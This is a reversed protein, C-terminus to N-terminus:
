RRPEDEDGYRERLRRNEEELERVRTGKKSGMLVVVLVAVGGAGLLGLLIIEQGGLGFM